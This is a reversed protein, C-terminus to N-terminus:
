RVERWMMTFDCAAAGTVGRGSLELTGLSRVAGAADLTIPYKSALKSTIAGRAQNSAPAYDEHFALAPSGSIAGAIDVEFASYTSNVDAYSVGTLAQGISLQWAISDTGRVVGTVAELVFKSRNSISNFTTKPRISMIHTNVGSALTVNKRTFKHLFGAVDDSGGETIVTACNFWMTTSVTDTCTMGVRIPLSAYQIYPKAVENAHLFEHCYVIQGGIDLGVRVRGVYLAQLDLVPIQEMTADFTIGSGGSGNLNDISWTGQAKIQDGNDTDSLIYFEPATGNMRFGIANNDDGYQAFKICNAVGGNFNCTKIALQGRGAQYRFYEYSQMYAKGGTPTSSFTMVAMRNTADHTITAGTGNTVQEFTLPQLDYTFQSDLLGNPLSGRLRSFPDLNVGDAIGVNGPFFYNGNAGQAM